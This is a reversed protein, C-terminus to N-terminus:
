KPVALVTGSLSDRWVIRLGRKAVQDAQYMDFTWYDAVQLQDTREMEALWALKRSARYFNIPAAMEWSGGVVVPRGAPRAPDREMYAVIQDCHRHFLWAQYFTTRFCLAYQAIVVLMPVALVCGIWRPGPAFRIALLMAFTLLLVWYIATRDLPLVVGALYFGATIAGLSMGAIGAIFIMAREADSIRKWRAVAFGALVIAFALSVAMGAYTVERAMASNPILWYAPLGYFSFIVLSEAAERWSHAGYYFHDPSAASLPFVLILWSVVLFPTVLFRATNEVPLMRDRLDPTTHRRLWHMSLFMLTAATIPVLYTINSCVSAAFTLGTAILRRKSRTTEPSRLFGFLLYVGLLFLALAMGYGRAASLFDLMLPNMSLASVSLLLLWGSGFIIECLRFVVWFYLACAAITPIRMTFENVGAVSVILKSLITFLVHHNADYRHFVVDWPQSVFWSYTLAEDHTIAQTVARYVNMAFLFVLLCISAARFPLRM